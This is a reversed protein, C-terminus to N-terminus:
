RIKPYDNGTVYDYAEKTVESVKEITEMTFEKTKEIITPEHAKIDQNVDRISETTYEQIYKDKVEEQKNNAATKAEAGIKEYNDGVKDSVDMFDEKIAEKEPVIM